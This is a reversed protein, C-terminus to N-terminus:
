LVIHLYKFLYLDVDWKQIDDLLHWRIGLEQLVQDSDLPFGINWLLNTQGLLDTWDELALQGDLVLVKSTVIEQVIPILWM